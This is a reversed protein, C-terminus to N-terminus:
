EIRTIELLADGYRISQGPTTNYLQNAMESDPSVGILQKGNPLLIPKSSIGIYFLIPDTEVLAGNIATSTTLDALSELKNLDAEASYLRSQYGQMMTISDNQFSSDEADIVEGEALDAQQQFDLITKKIEAILDQQYQILQNYIKKKNTM